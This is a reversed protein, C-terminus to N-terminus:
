LYKVMYYRKVTGQSYETVGCVEFGHREYFEPAQFNYTDLEICECQKELAIREVERLLKSGYGQGRLVDDVWLIEIHIWNWRWEALIGGHIEGNEDKLILNIQEYNSMIHNPMNRANYRILQDFVYKSEEPNSEREIVM